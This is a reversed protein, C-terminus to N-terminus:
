AMAGDGRHDPSTMRTRQAMVSMETVIRGAITPFYGLAIRGPKPLGGAIKGM